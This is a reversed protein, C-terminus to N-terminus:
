VPLDVSSLNVVRQNAILNRGKALFDLAFYDLCGLEVIEIDPEGVVKHAVVGQFTARVIVAVGKLMQHHLLNHSVFAVIVLAVGDGIPVGIVLLLDIHNNAIGLHGDFYFGGLVHFRFVRFTEIGELLLMWVAAKDKHREVGDCTAGAVGFEDVDEVEQLHEPVTFYELVRWPVMRM